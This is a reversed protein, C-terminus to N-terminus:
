NNANTHRRIFEKLRNKQADTLSLFQLCTQRLPISSFSADPPIDIDAVWKAPVGELWVGEGAFMIQLNITGDLDAESSHEAIYRFALGNLSINQIQGVRGSEPSLAALAGDVAQYRETIRREINM